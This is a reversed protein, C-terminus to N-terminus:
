AIMQLEEMGAMITKVTDIYIEFTGARVHWLFQNYKLVRYGLYVFFPTFGQPLPCALRGLALTYNEMLM